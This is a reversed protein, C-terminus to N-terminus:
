SKEKKKKKAAKKNKEQLKLMTSQRKQLEMRTSEIDRQDYEFLEKCIKETPILDKLSYKELIEESLEAKPLDANALIMETLSDAVGKKEREEEPEM